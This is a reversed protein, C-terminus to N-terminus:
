NDFLKEIMNTIKKKSISNIKAYILAGGAGVGEKAEGKDYLKLFHNNSLSFDFSSAYANVEFSLMSLLKKINSNKDELIWKTTALAVNEFCFKKKKAQSIADILLLLSAMQTGGALIIKSKKSMQLVFGAYFLLMNDSVKSLKKFIDDKKDIKKLTKKIVKEKLNKPSRKFSSSFLNKGKYGLAMATTQATTTGSPLSEALILYDSNLEYEKAFKVGKNFIEKAKIKTDKKDIRKSIKINFDYINFYSLKPKQKLGLNLFEIKYFPKLLHVARTILVPSPIGSSTKAVKPMSRVRGVALFEADLVPTLYIKKPIGAQTIGEIDSTKTYSLSLIFTASKGRLSEIFDINGSIIRM